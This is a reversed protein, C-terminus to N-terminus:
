RVPRCPVLPFRCPQADVLSLCLGTLYNSKVYCLAGGQSRVKLMTGHPYRGWVDEVLTYTDDSLYGALVVVELGRGGRQM